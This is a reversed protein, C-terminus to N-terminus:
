IHDAMIGWLNEIPSLDPSNPPWDQKPISHVFHQDIFETSRVSTHPRAGDQQFCVPNGVFLTQIDPLAKTLIDV